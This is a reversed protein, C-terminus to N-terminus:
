GRDRLFDMTEAQHLLEAPTRFTSLLIAAVQVTEAHILLRKLHRRFCLPLGALEDRDEDTDELVEDLEGNHGNEEPLDVRDAQRVDEAFKRSNRKKVDDEQHEIEGEWERLEEGVALAEWDTEPRALENEEFFADIVGGYDAVEALDLQKRPELLLDAGPFFAGELHHAVVVREGSCCGGGDHKEKEAPKYKGPLNGDEVSQLNM